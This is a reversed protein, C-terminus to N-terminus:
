SNIRQDAVKVRAKRLHNLAFVTLTHLTQWRCSAEQTSMLRKINRNIESPFSALFAVEGDEDENALGLPFFLLLIAPM